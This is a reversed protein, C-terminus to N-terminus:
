VADLKSRKYNLIWLKNVDEDDKATVLPKSIHSLPVSNETFQNTSVWWLGSERDETQRSFIHVCAFEVFTSEINQCTFKVVMGFKVDSVSKVAVISSLTGTREKGTTVWSIKKGTVPDDINRHFFEHFELEPEAPAASQSSSQKSNNVPLKGTM